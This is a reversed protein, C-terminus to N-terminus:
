WLRLLTKAQKPFVMWWLNVASRISVCLHWPQWQKGVVFKVYHFHRRLFLWPINSSAMGIQVTITYIACLGLVGGEKPNAAEKTRIATNQQYTKGHNKGCIYIYMHTHKHTIANSRRPIWVTVTSLEMPCKMNMWKAIFKRNTWTGVSSRGHHEVWSFNGCPNGFGVHQHQM